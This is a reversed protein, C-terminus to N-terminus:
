GDGHREVLREVRALRGDAGDRLAIERLARTPVHLIKNLATGSAMHLRRREEASGSDLRDLATEMERRRIREAGQRMRRIVPSARRMRYWDWFREAHVNMIAEAASMEAARERAATEVVVQLDDVNYLRVGDIAACAPEVNRPMAIDLIILDGASERCSRLREATILTHPASASTVVLDVESLRAWMRGYPITQADLEAALGRMRDPDRSVISVEAVGEARLVRGTLRGMEGTGLVLVRRGRLSGFARRALTLAASPISTSGRSIGTEARVRGGTALASQFLRHLVPGVSGPVRGRGLDYAEGVQGQIQPEGIVLSDLGSVVRYLHAVAEFGRRTYLFGRSEEPGLGAERSMTRILSREAAAPDAAAYYYETRNCTCLAVCEAVPSASVLERIVAELRADVLHFRERIEIPATRHSLGVAGLIM